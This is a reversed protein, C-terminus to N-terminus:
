PNSKTFALKVVLMITMNFLFSETLIASRLPIYATILNKVEPDAMYLLHNKFYAEGQKTFLVFETLKIRKIINIDSTYM